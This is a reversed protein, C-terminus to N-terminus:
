SFLIWYKKISIFNKKIEKLIKENFSSRAKLKTNNKIEDIIKKAKIGDIIIDQIIPNEKLKIELINNSFNVSVNEFYNSNYLKKLIENISTRDLDQNISVQSFMLITQDSIRDNGIIKIEKVVEAKSFNIFFLNLFFILLLIKNIKYSM